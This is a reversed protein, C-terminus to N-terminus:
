PRRLRVPLHWGAGIDIRRLRLVPWSWRLSLHLWLTLLLGLLATGTMLWAALTRGGARFLFMFGSALFPLCLIISPVVNDPM